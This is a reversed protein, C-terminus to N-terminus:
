RSLKKVVLRVLACSDPAGSDPDIQGSLSLNLCLGENLEQDDPRPRGEGEGPQDLEANKDLEQTASSSSEDPSKQHFHSKPLIFLIAYVDITRRFGKITPHEEFM